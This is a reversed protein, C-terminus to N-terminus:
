NCVSFLCFNGFKTCQYIFSNTTVVLEYVSRVVPLKLSQNRRLMETKFCRKSMKISFICRTWDPLTCPFCCAVVAVLVVLWWCYAGLLRVLSGVTNWQACVDSLCALVCLLKVDMLNQSALLSVSQRFNCVTDGTWQLTVLFV